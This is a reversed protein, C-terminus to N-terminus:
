IFKATIRVTCLLHNDASSLESHLDVDHSEARTASGPGVRENHQIVSLPFALALTPLTRSKYLLSTSEGHSPLVHANSHVLSRSAGIRIGDRKQAGRM